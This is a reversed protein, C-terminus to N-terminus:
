QALRSSQVAGLLIQAWPQLLVCLGSFGPQAEDAWVHTENFSSLAFGPHGFGLSKGKDEQCSEKRGKFTEFGSNLSFYFNLSNMWGTGTGM